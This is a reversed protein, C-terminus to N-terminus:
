KGCKTKFEEALSKEGLNMANKLCDCAESKRNLQFLIDSKLKYYRTNKGDLQMAQNIDTLAPEPQDLNQAYLQARSAYAPSLSKDLELARNFDALAKDPAPKWTYALGRALYIYADTPDRKLAEEADALARDFQQAQIYYYTRKKYGLGKKFDPFSQILQSSADVAAELNNQKDLADLLVELSEPEQQHKPNRDRGLKYYRESEPANKAFAYRVLHGFAFYVASNEQNLIWAQNLRKMAAEPDRNAFFQWGSRLYVNSASDASGNQQIATKRFADDEKQQKASRVCNDGFMPKLNDCQALTEASFWLFVFLVLLHKM